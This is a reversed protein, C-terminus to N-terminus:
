TRTWTYLKYCINVSFFYYHRQYSLIFLNSTLKNKSNICKCWSSCNCSCCCCCCSYHFFFGDVIYSDLSYTRDINCRISYSGRAYIYFYLEHISVVFLQPAFCMPITPSSHISYDFSFSKLDSLGMCEMSCVFVFVVECVFM